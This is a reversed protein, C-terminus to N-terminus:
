APLKGLKQTNAFNPFSPLAKVIIMKHQRTASVTATNGVQDPTSSLDM